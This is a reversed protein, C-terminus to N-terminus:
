WRRRKGAKEMRSEQIQQSVRRRYIELPFPAYKQACDGCKNFDGSVLAGAGLPHGCDTCRKM